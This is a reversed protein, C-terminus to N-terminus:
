TSGVDGDADNSERTSCATPERLSTVDGTVYPKIELNRSGSPSTSASSRRPWRSVPLLGRLAPRPDADLYAIENKWRNIAASTSAGSRARDPGTACRSSRSDAIEVTWGGDFRGVALDWIPNWDSNYQREDTIQGDM